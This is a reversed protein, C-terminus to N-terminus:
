ATPFQNITAMQGMGMLSKILEGGRVAMRNALEGVTIVEPIVVERVVKQQDLNGAQARKEREVRRRM